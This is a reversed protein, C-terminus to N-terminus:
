RKTVLKARELPLLSVRLFVFIWIGLTGRLLSGRAIFFWCIREEVVHIRSDAAPCKGEVVCGIIHERFDDRIEKNFLYGLGSVTSAILITLIWAEALLIGCALFIQSQSLVM